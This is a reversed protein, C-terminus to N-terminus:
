ESLFGRIIGRDSNRLFELVAEREPTAPMDEEILKLAASVTNNSLYLLRYIDHIENITENSYGRRRLGVVNIGAFSLPERAAKIFPPVDKRVLSGGTIMAHAGVKTFQHLASNGSIIAWDGVEVHGGVQVNNVLIVNNGIICDHAVHVYAMILCNSGIVTQFKDKTGRSITCYERISTGDGIIALTEEGEFKLDQPVGAIVAGPYIQCNKGIRAGPMISTFSGIWTGEGIEVNEHIMAFPDIKVGPAIKASPHIFTHNQIM